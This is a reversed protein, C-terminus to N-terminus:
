VQEGHSGRLCGATGASCLKARDTICKKKYGVPKRLEIKLNKNYVFVPEKEVM